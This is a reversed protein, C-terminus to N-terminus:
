THCQIYICKGRKGWLGINLINVTPIYKHERTYNFTFLLKQFFPLYFSLSPDWFNLMLFDRTSHARSQIRYTDWFGGVSVMRAMPRGQVCPQWNQAAFNTLCHYHDIRNLMLSMFSLLSIYPLYFSGKDTEPENVPTRCILSVFSLNFFFFLWFNILAHMQASVHVLESIFVEFPHYSSPSISWRLLRAIFKYLLSM